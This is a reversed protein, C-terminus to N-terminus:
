PQRPNESVKELLTIGPNCDALSVRRGHPGAEVLLFATVPLTQITTPEVMFDYSRAVTTGDSSSSAVSTNVTSQWTESRSFSESRSMGVSGHGGSPGSGASANLSSSEGDTLTLGHTKATGETFTTGIQRTVQSLAFHHGRGVFEAAAAADKANGLRMMLAASDASGLLQESDGRLRELLFILRVGVRKAQRAMAELSGQGLHDAGAVVLTEWASDVRRVRLERLLRHFVLADILDKRRQHTDSTTIITLGTSPWWPVQVSAADARGDAGNADRALLDLMGSLVQLEHQTRESRSITDIYGSLRTVERDNLVGNPAGDHLRRLVKVGAALRPFSPDNDLREAVAGVIESDVARLDGSETADRVAHLAGAVLEAVEDPSLDRLFGLRSAQAPLDVATVQVRRTVAFDALERGIRRETFDVLTVGGGVTLLSCGATTLLSAWGDHTGGVVDVRRPSSWFALPYWLLAGARRRADRRDHEAIRAQWVAVERQWVAHKADRDRKHAGEIRGIMFQPIAVIGAPALFVLIGLVILGPQKALAGAIILVWGMLGLLSGAAAGRGKMRSQAEQWKTLDPPEPERWAPMRKAEPSPVAPGPDVYEWGWREPPAFLREALDVSPSRVVGTRVQAGTNMVM